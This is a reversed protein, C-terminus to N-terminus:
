SSVNQVNKYQVNKFAVDTCSPRVIQLSESCNRWQDDILQVYPVSCKKLTRRSLLHTLLRGTWDHCKAHQMCPSFTRMAHVLVFTKQIVNIVHISTNENSCTREKLCTIIRDEHRIFTIPSYIISFSSPNCLEICENMNIEANFNLKKKVVNEIARQIPNFVCLCLM